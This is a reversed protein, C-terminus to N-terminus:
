KSKYDYSDDYGSVFCLNALYRARNKADQTATSEYLGDNINMIHTCVRSYQRSMNLTAVVCFATILWPLIKWKNHRIWNM